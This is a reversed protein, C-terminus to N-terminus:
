TNWVLEEADYVPGNLCVHTYTGNQAPRSCGLCAGMGCAMVSEVSVQCCLKRDKCFQRIRSMMLEPGCCYVSCGEPLRLSEVVETVFGHHGLTGDDTATLIRIGFKKFDALLPALENKERAGLVILDRNIVKKVRCNEKALFLLPAIGLGGGVFLAPSSADIRFGRGLPGLISVVEGERTRALIDTGRGVIKFYLQLRGDASTQHISFPRRLLPDKGVGTRVMVFQGPKANAAVQPSDFTLRYHADSFREVRTVIAKEQYQSM